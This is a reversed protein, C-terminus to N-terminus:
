LIEPKQISILVSSILVPRNLRLQEGDIERVDVRGIM